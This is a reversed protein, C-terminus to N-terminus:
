LLGHARFSFSRRHAIILHDTMRMNRRRLKACLRRTVMLDSHSPQPDGSPHTHCLLIEHARHQMAWAVIDDLPLEVSAHNGTGDLRQPLPQGRRILVVSYQEIALTSSSDPM